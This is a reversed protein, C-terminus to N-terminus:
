LGASWGFSFSWNGVVCGQAGLWCYGLWERSLRCSVFGREQSEFALDRLGWVGGSFWTVVDVTGLM